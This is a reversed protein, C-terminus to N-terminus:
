QKMCLQTTRPADEKENKNQNKTQKTKKTKQIIPQVGEKMCQNAFLKTQNPFSYSLEYKHPLFLKNKVTAIGQWAM